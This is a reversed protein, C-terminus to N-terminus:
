SWNVYHVFVRHRNKERIKTEYWVGEHLVDLRDGVNFTSADM